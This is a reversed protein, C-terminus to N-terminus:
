GLDASILRSRGLDAPARRFGNTSTPTTTATTDSGSTMGVWRSLASRCPPRAAGSLGGFSGLLCLLLAASRLPRAAPECVTWWSGRRRESAGESRGAVEQVGGDDAGMGGWRRWSPAHGASRAPLCSLVASRPRAESRKQRPRREHPPSPHQRAEPQTQVRPPAAGFDERRVLLVGNLHWANEDPASRWDGAYFARPPLAHAALFDARLRRPSPALRTHLRGSAPSRWADRLDQLSRPSGEM